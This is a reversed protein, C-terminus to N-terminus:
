RRRMIMRWWGTILKLLSLVLLALGAANAVSTQAVVNLLMEILSDPSPSQNFRGTSCVTVLWIFGALLVPVVGLAVLWQRRRKRQRERLREGQRRQYHHM